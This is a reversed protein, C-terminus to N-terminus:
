DKRLFLYFTTGHHEVSEVHIYADHEKMIRMVIALGLGTGTAKASFFPEFIKEQVEPSMGAGTDSIRVLLYPAGVPLGPFRREDYLGREVGIDEASIEITGQAKVADLANFFLNLFVQQLQNPDVVVLPLNDGLRNIIAVGNKQARSHLLLIVKGVIEALITPKKQPRPPRAYTFFDTLLGNVRDVQNTIRLLHERNRDEPELRSEVGQSLAKIGALPNRVEHAVASAIEAITSFRNMKEMKRLLRDAETIDSFCIISGVSSGDTDVRPFRAHEILRTEGGADTLEINKRKGSLSGQCIPQSLLTYALEAGVIDKLRRGEMKGPFFRTLLRRGEPNCAAVREDADLILLGTLISVIVSESFKKEDYLNKNSAKLHAILGNQERRLEEREVVAALVNAVALMTELEPPSAVAPRELFLVLVGLVRAETRIPISFNVAEPYLIRCPCDGSNQPLTFNDEHSLTGALAARSCYCRGSPVTGCTEVHKETLGTHVKLSLHLPNGEAVLVAGKPLIRLTPITLILDLLLQLQKLYPIDLMAVHLITNMVTQLRVAKQLQEERLWQHSIDNAIIVRFPDGTEDIESQSILFEVLHIEGSTSVVKGQVPVDTRDACERWREAFDKGQSEIIGTLSKGIVEPSSWGFIYEAAPNWHTIEDRGNTFIIGQPASSILKHLRKM